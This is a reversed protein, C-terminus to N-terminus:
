ETQEWWPRVSSGATGENGPQGNGSPSESLANLIAAGLEEPKTESDIELINASALTIGAFAHCHSDILGPIVCRGQLDVKDPCDKVDENNGVLAFRGDRVLFARACPKEEDMTYVVGNYYATGNLLTKGAM